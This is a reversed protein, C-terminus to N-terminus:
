TKVSTKDFVRIKMNEIVPKYDKYRREDYMRKKKIISHTHSSRFTKGRATKYGNTNLWEAIQLFTKNEENHMRSVISHLKYQYPSYNIQQLHPTKIVLEFNLFLEINPDFSVWVVGDNLQLANTPNHPNRSEEILNKKKRGRVEVNPLTISSEKEGEVIDYGLSKKKINKYKISDEVIPLNFYLRLTHERTKEDLSVIIKDLLGTLYEKHVEQSVEKKLEINEGFKKIWDVWRRENGINTKKLKSEELSVKVTKMRETLNDKIQNFTNKNDYEGLRYSTEVDGLTKQIQTLEKQHRQIKRDELGLEKTYTKYSKVKDLYQKKFETKLLSSKSVLKKVENWVFEDTLDINLSKTMNCGYDGVKGRKYKKDEPLVGNKWKRTKNACYYNREGRLPAIRGSMRTGCECELLDRLLYFNKTKANQNKRVLIKKKRDAVSSWVGEDLISPCSVEIKEDTLSDHYTFYGKYHTNNFLSNISGTNFLKGRRALVGSKDLQSKIWIQTKGKYFWDFMKKVWKSEEPHISLKKNKIEYGYPPPAGYWFGEKVRQLRGLRTRVSRMQNEYSAFADFVTKILRDTPNDFDTISKNTYLIVGNKTLAVKIQYQTEENRSLRDDDFAYLHKVEGNEVANLLGYMKPRNTFNEYNSSAVEENYVKYGRYKKDTFGLEVSKLIGLEKQTGLSTGDKQTKHSVRTYIYLIKDADKQLPLKEYKKISSM